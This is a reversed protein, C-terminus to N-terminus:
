VGFYLGVEHEGSATFIARPGEMQIEDVTVRSVAAVASAVLMPIPPGFMVALKVTLWEARPRIEVDFLTRHARLRRITLNRWGDPLGPHLELRGGLGDLRAGLLGGVVRRLFEDARLVKDGRVRQWQRADDLLAAVEDEDWPEDVVARAPDVRM